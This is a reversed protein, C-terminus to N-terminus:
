LFPSWQPIEMCAYLTSQDYKDGRNSNRLGGGKLVNKIPKLLRNEFICINYKYERLLKWTYLISGNIATAM